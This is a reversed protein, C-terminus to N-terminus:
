RALFHPSLHLITGVARMRQKGFKLGHDALRQPHIPNYVADDPPEALQLRGVQGAIVRLAPIRPHNIQHQDAVDIPMAKGIQHFFRLAVDIALDARHDKGHRFQLADGM